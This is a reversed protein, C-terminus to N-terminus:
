QVRCENSLPPPPPPAHISVLVHALQPEQPLNLVCVCVCRKICLTQTDLCRPKHAALPNDLGTANYVFILIVLSVGMSNGAQDTTGM